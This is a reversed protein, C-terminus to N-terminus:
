KQILVIDGKKVKNALYKIVENDMRMCGKSAYKGLSRPNNNGHIFMGTPATEGTQLNIKRLCIIKPGYDRPNKYRKTIKPATRYPYTEVHTVVRAGTETPTSTKGSAILYACIAKGNDDYEFLTNTSLDVVIKSIKAEDKLFVVPSPASELIRKNNTGKPIVAATDKALSFEVKDTLLTNKINNQAVIPSICVLPAAISMAKIYKTMLNVNPIRM